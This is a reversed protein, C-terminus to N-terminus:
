VCRAIVALGRRDRDTHIRVLPGPQGGRVPAAVL